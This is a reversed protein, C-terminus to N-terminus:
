STTGPAHSERHAQDGQEQQLDQLQVQLMAREMLKAWGRGTALEVSNTGSAHIERYVQGAEEQQLDQPQVQLM